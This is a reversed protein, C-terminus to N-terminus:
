ARLLGSLEDLSLPRLELKGPESPVVFTVRGARRKKDSAIFALTEAGLYPGVATPLGCADLLRTMRELQERAACGLGVAVRFAAVMGLAVAEG